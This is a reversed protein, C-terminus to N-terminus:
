PGSVRLRIFRRGESGAPVNAVRHELEVTGPNESDPNDDVGDRKWSGPLLTDSWEVTFIMGDVLAEKSCSYRFEIENGIMDVPTSVLTNAYPDQGTAFELLNSEGDFNADFDDAATGSGDTTRFHEYRWVQLESVPNIVGSVAVNDLFLHHGGGSGTGNLFVIRIVATGGSELTSDALGILSIDIEDHEDHDGSLNGGLDDIEDAVSTFVVGNTIDGSVVELRYTRPANPRFAIVDM